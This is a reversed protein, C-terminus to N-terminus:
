LIEVEVYDKEKALEGTSVDYHVGNLVGHKNVHEILLKSKEFDEKQLDLSDTPHTRQLYAEVNFM